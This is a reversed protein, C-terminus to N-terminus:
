KEKELAAAIQRLLYGASYYPTAPVPLFVEVAKECKTPDDFWAALANLSEPTPVGPEHLSRLAALISLYEEHRANDYWGHRKFLAELRDAIENPNM